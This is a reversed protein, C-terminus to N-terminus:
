LINTGSAFCYVPSNVRTIHFVSIEYQYKLTGESIFSYLKCLNGIKM